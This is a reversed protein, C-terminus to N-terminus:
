KGKEERLGKLLSIMMFILIVAFPFASAIAASQLGNLGGSWLLAVAAAAQIIGWIAKIQNPPQLMGNTTQMGMVFTASDASTIFFTGILIISVIITITSFPLQSLTAFLANEAHIGQNMATWIGGNGFREFYTGTGGLITFWLACFVTPAALVGIIFERITRGKSIRAIFSGVFPSWSIWWAWYFVTWHHIWQSGNHSLPDLSVNIKPLLAAYRGLSTAFSQLLFSTPGFSLFFCLLLIALIMNINSMWKMGKEIGSLVSIMFLFTIGIIIVFQTSFGYPISNDLYHLGGNIQIAGFGLSTAVGFVTALVAFTDIM